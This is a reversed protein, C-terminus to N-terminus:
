ERIERDKGARNGKQFTLIIGLLKRFSKRIIEFVSHKCHYVDLRQAGWCFKVFSVEELSKICLVGQWAAQLM